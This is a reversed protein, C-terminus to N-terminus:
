KADNENFIDGCEPCFKPPNKPDEPKWGCKDCQYLPAGEPKKTGCNSCFKGKNVAGCSCTWGEEAPKKAGCETCFNGSVTAGCVCKMVKVGAETCTPAKNADNEVPVVFNHEVTVIEKCKSCYGKHNNDDVKVPDHLTAHGTADIPKVYTDGCDCKFTASGDATCTPEVTEGQQVYVHKHPEQAEPAEPEATGEASATMMPVSTLMMILALVVALIKNSKKM